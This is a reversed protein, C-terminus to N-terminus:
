PYKDDFLAKVPTMSLQDLEQKIMPVDLEIDLIM